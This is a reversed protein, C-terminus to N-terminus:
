FLPSMMKIKTTIVLYGCQSHGFLCVLCWVGSVMTCKHKAGDSNKYNRVFLISFYRDLKNSLRNGNRNKTKKTKDNKLRCFIVSCYTHPKNGTDLGWQKTTLSNFFTSIFSQFQLTDVM